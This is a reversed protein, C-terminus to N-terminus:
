PWKVTLAYIEQTGINRTFVPSGDPAVSIQIHGGAGLAWRFDKLSAILEIKRDALRIRMAQPEPGVTVYYVYKYDLSHAYCAAQGTGLDSWTKTRVDFIMVRGNKISEAIVQNPSVWQSGIFGSSFVVPSFTGAQLDFLQLSADAHKDWATVALHMGDPSWNPALFPGKDILQPTGGDMSIVYGQGGPNTAFAAQKGDPSIFPYRPKMPPYTLQVRESGDARSRWLDGEPYSLYAVWRGDSSYTVDYASIGSLISVFENSRSDYRVLEGKNKTGVAFLQKGDLSSVTQSFSLPGNTLQVPTRSRPIIGRNAPWAWLNSLDRHTNSYVLYRGDRTWNLCCVYTDDTSKAITQLGSGDANIEMITGDLVNREAGALFAIHTGDPSVTPHRLNRLSTDTGILKHSNSGDKEAVYFDTGHIFLIRGDPLYTPNADSDIDGISRSEGAPLSVTWLAKKGDDKAVLLSSADPSIASILSGPVKGPLPVTPGGTAAVQAIGDRNDSAGETFYIRPGDTALRASGEKAIGDDTLQTVAQVVPVEPARTWWIIFAAIIAVLAASAAIWGRKAPSTAAATIGKTDTGSDSLADLAFELDTAHQFRQAPNKALCRNVIRQLGPPVAPGSQSISPPDENLIAAMTEASTAKRFTPKGTLMEYLVVGVAFIDSRADAPEGRVQEPSMYGVTGLVQGPVSQQRFSVTPSDLSPTTVPNLKALGFDLIKIRGDKTVWINEPKLDRHVIGADHAAALGRALEVGYDLAERLRLPGNRLRERLTEGQLLETVIYPSGEYQGVHFISVINPHNLAAAAQAELDFRRLRESDRSWEAPLVKIAVDRKLAADRARYVEGMGGAGLLAVIEYSNLQSGAILPM